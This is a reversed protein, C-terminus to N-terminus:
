LLSQVFTFFHDEKEDLRTFTGNKVLGVLISYIASIPTKAKPMNCIAM